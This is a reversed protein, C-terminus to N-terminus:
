SAAGGKMFNEPNFVFAQAQKFFSPLENYFRRANDPSYALLEGDLEIEGWDLTVAVIKEVEDAEMEAAYMVARGQRAAATKIRKNMSTQEAKRWRPSDVGALKIWLAKGDRKLVDGTAPHKLEMNAGDDTPAFMRLDM